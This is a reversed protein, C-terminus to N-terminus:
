QEPLIIKQNTTNKVPKEGPVHSMTRTTSELTSGDTSTKTRSKSFTGKDVAQAKTQAKLKDGDNVHTKSQAKGDTTAASGGSGISSTTGDDTRCTGATGVSSASTGGASASGASGVTGAANCEEALVASGSALLAISAAAILNLPKM